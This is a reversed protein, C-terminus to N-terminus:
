FEIMAKQYTSKQIGTQFSWFGCQWLGSCKISQRNKQQNKTQKRDSWHIFIFSSFQCYLSYSRVKKFASHGSNGFKTCINFYIYTKKFLQFRIRYALLICKRSIIFLLLQVFTNSNSKCQNLRCFQRMMKPSFNIIGVITIYVPPSYMCSM